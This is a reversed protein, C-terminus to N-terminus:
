PFKWGAELDWEPYARVRSLATYLPYLTSLISEEIKM